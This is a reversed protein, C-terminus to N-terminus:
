APNPDQTARSTGKEAICNGMYSNRLIDVSFNKALFYPKPSYSALTGNQDLETFPAVAPAIEPKRM